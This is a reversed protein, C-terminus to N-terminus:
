LGTTPINITPDIKPDATQNEDVVDSAEGQTHIMNISYTCSSLTFVLSLLALFNIKKM